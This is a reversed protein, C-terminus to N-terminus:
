DDSVGDLHIIPSWPINILITGKKIGTTTSTTTVSTDIKLNLTHQKNYVGVIVCFALVVVVLFTCQMRFMFIPTQTIKKDTPSYIKRSQNQPVVFLRFICVFFHWCFAHLVSIITRDSGFIFSCFSASSSSSFNFNQM